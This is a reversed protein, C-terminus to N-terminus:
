APATMDTQAARTPFEDLVGTTQTQVAMLARAIDHMLRDVPYYDLVEDPTFQNGFLICFWRIMVDMAEPISIQDDNQITEGKLAAQSLAVIKGYVKAAPEMERLARGTIFDVTYAKLMRIADNLDHENGFAFVSPDHIMWMSGPTMELRDAAMALVTAASAATGSVIIHVDGPYARVDDFMRVAANCSGGYSNLIIRVPLSHDEGEAFLQDHLIDPTIEDGYWVEEDIYGNLNIVRM